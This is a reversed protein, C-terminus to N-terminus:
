QEWRRHIGWNDMELRRGRVQQKAGSGLGILCRWNVWLRGRQSSSTSLLLFWVERSNKLDVEGVCLRIWLKYCSVWQLIGEGESRMALTACLDEGEVTRLRVWGM